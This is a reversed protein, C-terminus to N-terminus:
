LPAMRSMIEKAADAESPMISDGKRKKKASKKVHAAGNDEPGGDNKEAEIIESATLPGYYSFDYAPEAHIRFGNLQYERAGGMVLQCTNKDKENIVRMVCTADQGIADSFALEDLNANEHKAAERNAQLTAILPKKKSLVMQRLARSINRVREHDKKAKQIDSMLYLGDICVFDPNYKDVKSSLWQVTDGGEPADQGSLCIINNGLEADRIFDLTSNFNEEDVPNLHGSRLDKYSIKAMCAIIRDYVNEPSMEKTYILVRKECEFLWAILSTLVWSKKSKPRGYFVIYDDPQFGGHAENMIPWPWRGCSMDIGSQRLLYKMRTNNSADGLFVDTNRGLGVNSLQSGLLMLKNIGELPDLQCAQRVKELGNLCELALRERRVETCLAETTMGPDDCRLFSPYIQSMIQPGIVSGASEAQSYYGTIHNFMALGEVTLFDSPTIGWEIVKNLEGTAVIRSILQLERSAM